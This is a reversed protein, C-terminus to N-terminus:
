FTHARKFTHLPSQTRSISIIICALKSLVLACIFITTSLFVVPVSCKHHVYYTSQSICRYPFHYDCSKETRSCNSAQSGKWMQSVHKCVDDHLLFLDVVCVDPHHMSINVIRLGRVIPSRPITLWDQWSTVIETEKHEQHCKYAYIELFSSLNIWGYKPFYGWASLRVWGNFFYNHM